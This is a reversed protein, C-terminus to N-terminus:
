RPVLGAILENVGDALSGFMGFDIRNVAVFAGVGTGPAFAVYSMFGALGGTKQVLLPRRGDPAMTLWALGIGQMPGAEDFGIAAELAQRQLYPAHTLALTARAAADAPTLNHRLWRVMDDATSYVGGSAGIEATAVCPEAAAGPIGYGAMLRGCQEETPALTTDAMGLPGTVRQRLLEAYSTGTAAALGAGLLDFGVNSYAALSGPAWPLEHGALWAFRDAATPWAFPAADAPREVPLERPLAAAHTALDLLTIPRGPDGPVRVGPPAHRQLPATLSLRGEAALGGLLEGAFVKSISGLRVLSKGDPERGSGKATEGHGVVVDDDGDVVALVMGTAGSEMFLALGALGVAEELLAGAAPAGAPAGLLLCLCCLHAAAARGTPMTDGRRPQRAGRDQGAGEPPM